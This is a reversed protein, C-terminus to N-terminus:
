LKEPGLEVAEGEVTLRAPHGFWTREGNGYKERLLAEVDELTGDPRVWDSALDPFARQCNECKAPDAFKIPCWFSEVNRLLEGGFAYVGTMWDCYLCWILDHGVLGEFKHRSVNVWESHRYRPFDLLWVLPAYAVIETIRIACLTPLGVLTAWLALYNRWRGVTANIFTVIRPRDQVEPHAWEHLWIWGQLVVAQAVVAGLLGWWGAYIAALIWPAWTLGAVIVDLGPARALPEAISYPQEGARGLLTLGAALGGVLLLTGVFAGIM